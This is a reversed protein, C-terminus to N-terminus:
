WKLKGKAIVNAMRPQSQLLAMEGFFHGPYLNTLVKETTAAAAATSTAAAGTPATEVARAAAAAAATLRAAAVAAADEEKGKGEEEGGKSEKGVLKTETVVAQGKMLIYFRDGEEGQRVVYEGDNYEAPILNPLIKLQEERSLDTFLPVKQMILFLKVDVCLDFDEKRLMLCTTPCVTRVTADRVSSYLLALEGFSDGRYIHTLVKLDVQSFSKRLESREGKGGAMKRENKLIQAEGKIIVYFCDGPMGETVIDERAEYEVQILKEFLAKQHEPQFQSFFTTQRLSENDLLSGDPAEGAGGVGGGTGGGPSLLGGLTASSPASTASSSAAALTSVGVDGSGEVEEEVVEVVDDIEELFDVVEEDGYDSSSDSDSGLMNADGAASRLM